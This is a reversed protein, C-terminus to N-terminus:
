GSLKEDIARRAVDLAEDLKEADKGGAQAMTDRGGGRGGVPEAAARIIDAANLGKEVASKTLSAILHPRGERVTGLVVAGDRLSSKVRDSLDLLQKPDGLDVVATVVKLGDREAAQSTLERALEDIRGAGGSALERELEQARDLASEVAAAADEPRTRLREAIRALAADRERM